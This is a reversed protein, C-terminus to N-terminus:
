AFSAEASTDALGQFRSNYRAANPHLLECQKSFDKFFRVLDIAM